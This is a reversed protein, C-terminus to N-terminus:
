QETAQPTEGAGQSAARRPRGLAGALSLAGAGLAGGVLERRSPRVEAGDSRAARRERGMPGEPGVKM